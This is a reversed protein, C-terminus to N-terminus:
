NMANIFKKIDFPLKSLKTDDAVSGKTDTYDLYITNPKDKLMINATIFLKNKYPLKMFSNYDALTLGNQDNFKVLLNEYNIRAKRRNWKEKADQFSHYHLFIIDVDYLRGIVMDKLDMKYKGSRKREILMDSAHCETYDIQQLDQKLYFDLHSLFEVYDHAPIWLGITPTRYQLGFTDYIAGGWCNNSLISFDRNKLKFRKYFSIVAKLRRKIQVKTLMCMMM